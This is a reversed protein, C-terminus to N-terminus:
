QLPEPIAAAQIAARKLKTWDHVIFDIAVGVHPLRTDEAVQTLTRLTEDAVTTQLKPRRRIPTEQM